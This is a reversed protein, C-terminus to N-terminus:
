YYQEIYRELERIFENLPQRSWHTPEHLSENCYDSEVHQYLGSITYFTSSCTACEFTYQRKWRPGTYTMYGDMNRSDFALENIEERSIDSTRCAGPELHLLMASISIFAKNCGGICDKDRPM